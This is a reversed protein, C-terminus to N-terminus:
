KWHFWQFWQLAILWGSLYEVWDGLTDTRHEKEGQEYWWFLLFPLFWLPGSLATLIGWIAHFVSFWDDFVVRAM